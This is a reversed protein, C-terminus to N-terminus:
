GRPKKNSTNMGWQHGSIFEMECPCDCRLISQRDAAWYLQLEADIQSDLSLSVVGMDNSSDQFRRLGELWM